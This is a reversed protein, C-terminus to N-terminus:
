PKASVAAAPWEPETWQWNWKRFYETAIGDTLPARQSRATEDREPLVSIETVSVASRFLRPKRTRAPEARTAQVFSPAHHSPHRLSANLEQTRLPINTILRMLSKNVFSLDGTDGRHNAIRM